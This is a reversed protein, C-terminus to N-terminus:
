VCTSNFVWTDEQWHQAGKMDEVVAELARSQEPFVDFRSGRTSKPQAQIEAGDILEIL